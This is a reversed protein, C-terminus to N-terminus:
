EEKSKLYSKILEHEVVIRPKIGIVKETETEIKGDKIWYRVAMTTVGYHEAIEKLTMKM